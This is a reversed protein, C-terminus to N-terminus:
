HTEAWNNGVNYDGALPCRMEYAEGALEIARCGLKGVADALHEPAEVQWEDHVNAVFYAEIDAESLLAKFIVLAKKMVVAGAGQLLTNLAAHQHRVRLRRGDLGPLSKHKDAIKGVLERLKQLAPTAALFDRKLKKGQKAGGGIVSGIKADGAGYLFAYIFTKAQNRSPLGAAVQNATHIDGSLIEQTYADDKMYHALMRLELGSADIGVLKMGTPVIWCSRMEKGLYSQVGTVQALNPKSHTMRGTVAGNCTVRGRVRGDEEVVDLWSALQSVRKQLTLYRGVLRAEILDIKDLETESVIINGKETKKTFEAGLTQLRKAIQPRSGINFEEVHDKLPKKSTRHWRKTVIPPFTEQLKAEIRRMRKSLSSHLQTAYPVDLLFGRYRQDTLIAAVEHELRWSDEAFHEKTLQAVVHLCARTNLRTDRDCYIAMRELWEDVTEDRYVDRATFAGTEIPQSTHMQEDEDWADFYEYVPDLVTKVFVYDQAPGDFDTFDGKEYGFQKGYTSLAHGGARSPNYLRSLLMGDIHEVFVNFTYDWVRELVPVDFGIGNWHMVVDVGVLAVAFEEVTLCKVSEDTDEYHVYAMWIIDHNYNTEIDISARRTTTITNM